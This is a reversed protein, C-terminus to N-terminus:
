KGENQLQVDWICSYMNGDDDVIEEVSVGEAHAELITHKADEIDDTKHQSFDSFTITIM